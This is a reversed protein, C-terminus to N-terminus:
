AVQQFARLSREIAEPALGHAIFVLSAKRSDSRGGIHEPPYMLEQVANIAIAGMGVTPVIGKVRLVSPGHAHLLLSLWVGFAVWNVPEDFSLSTCTVSGGHAHSASATVTANHTATTRDLLDSWGADVTTVVAAPNLEAVHRTLRALDEPEALDTKSILIRDAIEIQSKVEPHRRLQDEGNLGDVVAVIANLDFHHVLVPDTAIAIAIPGPHALGSTEIVVRRLGALVGREHQDLLRHLADLLEQRRDCCACGGAIAVSADCLGSALEHDLGITAFENVIV